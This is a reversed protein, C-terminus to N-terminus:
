RTAEDVIAALPSSPFADHFAAARRKAEPLRGAAALAQVAIVEREEALQSRPFERAHTDVASLASTADGRGLATRAMDLLTRERALAPDKPAGSAPTAPVARAAPTTVARAPSAPPLASVDLAPALPAPTVDPSPASAPPAAVARDVYVTKPPAWRAHAAAGAGAGVALAASVLAGIKWSAIKAAANTTTAKSAADTAAATAGAAAGAVAAGSIAKEIGSWMAAREKTSFGPRGREAALLEEISM